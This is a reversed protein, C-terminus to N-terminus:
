KEELSAVFDEPRQTVYIQSTAPNKHGCLTSVDHINGTRKLVRLASAHRCDHFRYPRRTEPNSIGLRKQVAVWRKWAQVETYPWVRDTAAEGKAGGRRVRALAARVSKTFYAIRGADTKTDKFGAADDWQGRLPFNSRISTGDEIDGWTVGLLEGKRLASNLAAVLLSWYRVDEREVVSLIKVQETEPMGRPPKRVQSWYRRYWARCSAKFTGKGACKRCTKGLCKKSCKETYSGSCVKQMKGYHGPTYSKRCNPNLCVQAARISRKKM